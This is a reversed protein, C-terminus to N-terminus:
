LSLNGSVRDPQHECFRSSASVIRSSAINLRSLMRFPCLNDNEDTIPVKLIHLENDSQDKIFKGTEKMDDECLSDKSKYGIVKVAQLNWFYLAM